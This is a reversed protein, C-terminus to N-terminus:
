INSSAMRAEKKRLGEERSENGGTNRGCVTHRRPKGGREGWRQKKKKERSLM